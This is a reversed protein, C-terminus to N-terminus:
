IKQFLKKSRSVIGAFRLIFSIKKFFAEELIESYKKAYALVSVVAVSNIFM